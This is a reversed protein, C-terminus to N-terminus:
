INWSRKERTPGLPSHRKYANSRETHQDGDCPAYCERINECREGLQSQHQHVLRGHTREKVVFLAVVLMSHVM